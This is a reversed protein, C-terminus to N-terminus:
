RSRAVRPPECNIKADSIITNLLGDSLEMHQPVQDMAHGVEKRGKLVIPLTTKGNASNRIIDFLSQSPTM